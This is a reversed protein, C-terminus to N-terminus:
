RLPAAVLSIFIVVCLLDHQWTQRPHTWFILQRAAQIAVPANMSGYGQRAQEPHELNMSIKRVDWIRHFAAINGFIAICIMGAYLHSFLSAVAFAVIREPREMFGSNFKGPLVSEARARTYSTMISGMLALASIVILVLDERLVFYTIAGCFLLMDSYRDTVSDIFAGFKTVRGSMRAVAGDLMDFTNGVFIVVGALVHWWNLKGPPTALAGVVLLAGAIANILVGAATLWNPSIGSNIIGRALADRGQSGFKGFAKGLMDKTM